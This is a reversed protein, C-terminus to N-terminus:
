AQRRRKREDEAAWWVILLGVLTLVSGVVEGVRAGTVSAGVIFVGTWLVPVIGGLWVPNRRSLWVHGCIAGVGGLAAIIWIWVPVDAITEYNM